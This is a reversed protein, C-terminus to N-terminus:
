KLLQQHGHKQWLLQVALHIHHAPDGYATQMRPIPIERGYIKVTSNKNYVIEDNLKKYLYDALATYYFDPDRWVLLGNKSDYLLEPMIFEPIIFEPKILMSIINKSNKGKQNKSM